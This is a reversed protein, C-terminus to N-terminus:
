LDKILKDLEEFINIPINETNDELNETIGQVINLSTREIKDLNFYNYTFQGKDSQPLYKIFKRTDVTLNFYRLNTEYNDFNPHIFKYNLTDTFNIKSAQIDILFDIRDKKIKMNCRKCSLNLNLLDFSLNRYSYKPLIHEIDIVMNFEDELGRKCYCCQETWNSKFYNKIKSKISDLKKNSWDQIEDNLFSEIVERETHSYAIM